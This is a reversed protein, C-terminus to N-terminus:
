TLAMELDKSAEEMASMYERGRFAEKCAESLPLVMLESVWHYPEGTTACSVGGQAVTRTVEPLPVGELAHSVALYRAELVPDAFRLWTRAMAAIHYHAPRFAVGDFGLRECTMLLMGVVKELAGLGPHEQGPLLPKDVAPVKRPNQMLLWEVYLLRFPALERNERLVVEMLLDARADDSVVRVLEGTPHGPEIDVKVGHYGARRVAQLIGYRELGVEVAYRSYYGLLRTSARSGMLTGYIDEEAFDFIDEEQDVVTQPEFQRAIKRFYRLNRDFMSDIPSDMSASLWALSRASHRWAEEGYGGALVWVLPRGAVQRLVERDRAFIGDHSVRWNGLADDEAIDVGAVYFVLAPKVKRVVEPLHERLASLYRTDEVGFGLELSFDAVAPSEDWHRAHMSFTFVSEDEAFIARTGDGHHLDLDVVLVQGAFGEARLQLIAVAVDNFICFGSGEAAHAPHMGGGLNVVPMAGGGRKSKRLTLHAAKITGGVMRRQQRLAHELDMEEPNDGFIRAVVEPQSVRELYEFSHAFSLSEATAMKAGRVQTATIAGEGRLYDLIREPRRADMLRSGPGQYGPHYVFLAEPSQIRRKVKRLARAARRKWHKLARNTAM